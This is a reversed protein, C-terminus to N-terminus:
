WGYRRSEDIFDLYVTKAVILLLFLKGNFIYDWCIHVKNWLYTNRSLCSVFGGSPCVVDLPPSYATGLYKTVLGRKVLRDLLGINTYQNRFFGLVWTNQTVMWSILRMCEKHCRIMKKRVNFYTVRSGTSHKRFQSGSLRM